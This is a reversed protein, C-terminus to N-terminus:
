KLNQAIVYLDSFNAHATHQVIKVHAASRTPRLGVLGVIPFKTQESHLNEHNKIVKTLSDIDATGVSYFNRLVLRALGDM